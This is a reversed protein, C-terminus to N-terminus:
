FEFYLTEVASNEKTDKGSNQESGKDRKRM